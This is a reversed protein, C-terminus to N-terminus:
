ARLGESGGKLEERRQSYAYTFEAGLLILLSSYYVWILTLVLSGAAGYASALNALSLYEGM